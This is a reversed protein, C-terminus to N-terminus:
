PTAGSLQLAFREMARQLVGARAMLEQWQAHFIAYDAVPQQPPPMATAVMPDAETTGRAVVLTSQKAIAVDMIAASAAPPHEPQTERLVKSAPASTATSTSLVGSLVTDHPLTQHRLAEQPPRARELEARLEIVESQLAALM